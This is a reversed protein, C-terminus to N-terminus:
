SVRVGGVVRVGSLVRLGEGAGNMAAWVGALGCRGGGARRM